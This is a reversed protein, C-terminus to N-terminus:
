RIRERRLEETRLPKWDLLETIKKMSIYPAPYALNFVQGYAKNNLTALLFAQVFPDVHVNARASWTPPPRQMKSSEMGQTSFRSKTNAKSYHVSSGQVM